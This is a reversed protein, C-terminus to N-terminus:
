AVTQEPLREGLLRDFLGDVSVELPKIKNENLPELVAREGLNLDMALSSPHAGLWEGPLDIHNRDDGILADAKRIPYPDERGVFQLLDGIEQLLGKQSATAAETARHYGRKVISLATSDLDFARQAM